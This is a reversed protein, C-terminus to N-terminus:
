EKSGIGEAKASAEASGGFDKPCVHVSAPQQSTLWEKIFLRGHSDVDGFIKGQLEKADRFGRRDSGSTRHALAIALAGVM